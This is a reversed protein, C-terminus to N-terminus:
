SRPFGTIFVATAAPVVMTNSFMTSFPTYFTWGTDIGGFILIWLAISGGIMYIYWSLLNLWPFALDRAGIMLPILFNGLVAPISPILFFFIMVVGHMTFLRNYADPSHLVDGRPTLLELRMVTAAAGGVFFFFTISAMYLLGIRKHDNTLLWSKLTYAQLYDEKFEVAPASMPEGGGGRDVQHIHHNQPSRARQDPGHLPPMLPEYGAVIQAKPRLISDRIYAEDATVFRVNQGEQIPVPRGFVGELRPAHVTQSGKHCGACHHQVFLREGEEAMSPGAGGSSLWQQFDAPEMVSVWGGMKSHDTGCYEACYLHFRGALTPEFWLSTYRGPLVDQKVRFAPVFFSHIVDQSTMTLKVPRGLPVHLENIESRGEAHQLHWMWQKGVVSVELADGPPEYLRFFLVGGLHVDAPVLLLPIM